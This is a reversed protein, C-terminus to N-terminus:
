PQDGGLLSVAAARAEDTITAGALMRAIEETRANADLVDVTTKVSATDKEAGSKAVQWHHQGRAAVQPSHTIVLVQAGNEGQALGALREGVAAAVAGGIGSDVEDFIITSIPDAEALVAKLALMFRALEGGSAIRNLPGFPQGPNTSAEFFVRECGLPGWADDALADLRTRIRAKELKLPPLEGAVAKDLRKAAKARAASLAAAEVVFTERAKAEAEALRKLAAGGDDIAAIQRAFDDKLAALGDVSVNHKRSLARLAFLREEVAELGAPDLDTAQAAQSIYAKGDAAAEAARDLASIADDLRGDAKEAVRTLRKIASQLAAEVGAGKTLESRAKDLAEILKEGHMMLARSRSLAEEEDRTPNIQDLEDFAHRLYDEDQRAKLAAAEAAERARMADAWAHYAGATKAATGELGGFADLLTRHTSPNLLSQTEFQGHIEVLIEGLGKLLAVSVPADNIFARSRGDATLSRRLILGEDTTLGNEELFDSVAAHGNLEFAATVSAQKAGHRVLRAEARAGLALGLADLLISKGAGTEGTLVSLGSDFTLDLRDILVVDRISLTRLM